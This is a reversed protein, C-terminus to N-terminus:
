LLNAPTENPIAWNIPRQGTSELYNNALSFHSCGIFGRHASLPSPHPAKLLCHQDTSLSQGKKQAHAGWLMFVINKRNSNLVNIIRDTFLEWGRNQHSGAQQAEVTLVSNLLLVGQKSWHELHGHDPSEIGLDRKLEKYINVLSPPMKQGARVSFSLGHAQGLGHYPDQGLIVVRVDNLPTLKFVNFVDKPRPYIIKGDHSEKNLFEVLSQFYKKSYEEKLINSWSSEIDRDNLITSYSEM